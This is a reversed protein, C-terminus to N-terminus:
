PVQVAPLQGIVTVDVPVPCKPTIAMEVPPFAPTVTLLTEPPPVQVCGAEHLPVLALGVWDVSTSYMVKSVLPTVVTVTVKLALTPPRADKESYEKLPDEMANSAHSM